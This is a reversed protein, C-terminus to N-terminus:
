VRWTGENFAGVLKEDKWVGLGTVRTGNSAGLVTYGDRVSVAPFDDCTMNSMDTFYGDAISFADFTNLGMIERVTSVSIGGLLEAQSMTYQIPRVFM